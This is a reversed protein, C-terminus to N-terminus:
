LYKKEFKPMRVVKVNLGRKMLEKKLWDEKAWQDFGLAIIDPKLTLVRDIIKDGKFGLVVRNVFDLKKIRNFRTIENNITKKRKIKESNKDRAIIVVLESDESLAKASKLYEIHGTHLLDFTGACVIVM